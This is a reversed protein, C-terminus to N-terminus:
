LADNALGVEKGWSQGTKAVKLTYIGFDMFILKGGDSPKQKLAKPHKRENEEEGERGSNIKRYSNLGKSTEKTYDPNVDKGGTKSGKPRHGYTKTIERGKRERLAKAPWRV